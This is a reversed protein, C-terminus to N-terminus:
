LQIFKLQTFVKNKVKINEAFKHLTILLLKLCYKIQPDFTFTGDVLVPFEDTRCIRHLSM